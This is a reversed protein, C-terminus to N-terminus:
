SEDAKEAEDLKELLDLFRDPIPENEVAGYYERLKRGIRSNPDVTWDENQIMDIEKDKKHRDPM